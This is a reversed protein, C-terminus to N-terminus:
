KEIDSMNEEKKGEGEELLNHHGPHPIPFL